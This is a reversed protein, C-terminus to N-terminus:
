SQALVLFTEPLYLQSLEIIAAADWPMAGSYPPALLDM